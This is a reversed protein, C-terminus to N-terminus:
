RREAFPSQVRHPHEDDALYRRRDRPLRDDNGLDQVGVERANRQPVHRHSKGGFDVLDAAEAPPLEHLQGADHGEDDPFGQAPPRVDEEIRRRAAVPDRDGAIDDDEQQRAPDETKSDEVEVREADSGNVLFRRRKQPREEAPGIGAGVEGDPRGAL